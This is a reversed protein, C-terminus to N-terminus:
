FIDIENNHSEGNAGCPVAASVVAEGVDEFLATEDMGAEDDITIYAASLDEYSEGGVAAKNREVPPAIGDDALAAKEAPLGSAPAAAFAFGGGSNDPENESAASPEGNNEESASSLGDAQKEEPRAASGDGTVVGRTLTKEVDDEFRNLHNLASIIGEEIRTQDDKFRQILVELEEIRKQYSNLKSKLLTNEDTIRNVYDIAKTVRTELLRVQDINVM